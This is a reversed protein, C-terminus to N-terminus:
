CLQLTSCPQGLDYLALYLWSVVTGVLVVVSPLSSLSLPCCAPAARLTSPETHHSM